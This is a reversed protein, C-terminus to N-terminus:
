CNGLCNGEQVNQEQKIVGDGTGLQISPPREVKELPIGTNPAYTLM